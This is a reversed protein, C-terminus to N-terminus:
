RKARAFYPGTMDKTTVNNYFTKPSNPQLPFYTGLSSGMNFGLFAKLTLDDKVTGIIEVYTDSLHM